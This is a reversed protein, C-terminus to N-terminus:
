KVAGGKRLKLIKMLERLVPVGQVALLLLIRGITISMDARATITTQDALFDCEVELDRKKIVFAKDLLPFLNGIAAWARGYNQALAAPDDGALILKIQLHTIRLKRGFAAVFDLM